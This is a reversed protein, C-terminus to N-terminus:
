VLKSRGNKRPRPRSAFATRAGVFRARRAPLASKDGLQALLETCRIRIQVDVNDAVCRALAPTGKRGLNLIDPSAPVDKATVNILIKPDKAIGELVERRRKGIKEKAKKAEIKAEAEAESEEDDDQAFATRISVITPVLALLAILLSQRVRHINM